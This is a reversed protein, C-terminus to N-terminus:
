QNNKAAFQTDVVSKLGNYVAPKQEGSFDRAFVLMAYGRSFDVVPWTGSLGPLLLVTAKTGVAGEAWCGLAFSLREDARPVAETHSADVQIKRMEEVAGESLIQKGSWKGKGLLMQLFKTFDAATSKAGGAPNPAAGDDTAFTTNRMTLPVFLRTRILQDFKKKTVAEAVRALIVPGYATYRFAEGANGHIEKKLISTVEAELSAAGSKELFDGDKFNDRTLGTQHTLCHRITVFNRRYLEFEPLYKAVPDDLSVKGEDALQLILATTFWQSSAGISFPTKVNAADGINKQYIVSDAVAVVVSFDKGFDAKREEVLKDVVPLTPPPPAKKQSYLPQLFLLFAAVLSAKRCFIYLKASMM